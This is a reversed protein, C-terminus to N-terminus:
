FVASGFEFLASLLVQIYSKILIKQELSVKGLVHMKYMCRQSVLRPVDM